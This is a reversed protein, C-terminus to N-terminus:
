IDHRRYLMYGIRQMKPAKGARDNRLHGSDQKMLHQMSLEPASVAFVITTKLPQREFIPAPHKGVEPQIIRPLPDVHIKSQCSIGSRFVM